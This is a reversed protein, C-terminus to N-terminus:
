LSVAHLYLCTSARSVGVDDGRFILLGSGCHSKARDNVEHEYTRSGGM